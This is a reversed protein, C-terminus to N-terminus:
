VGLVGQVVLRGGGLDAGLALGVVGENRQRYQQVVDHAAVNFENLILAALGQLVLHIVDEVAPRISAQCPMVTGVQGESVGGSDSRIWRLDGSLSM